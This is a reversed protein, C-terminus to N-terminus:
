KACTVDRIGTLCRKCSAVQQWVPQWHCGTQWVTLGTQCGTPCCTTDHICVDLRNDFRNDFRNSSTQKCSAALQGVPHVVPKVVPQITYVSYWWKWRGSTEKVKPKMSLQKPILNLQKVHNQGPSREIIVVWVSNWTSHDNQNKVNKQKIKQEQEM